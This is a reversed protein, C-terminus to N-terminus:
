GILGTAFAGAAALGLTWLLILAGTVWSLRLHRAQAVEAQLRRFEAVAPDDGPDLPEGHWTGPEGAAAAIRALEEGSHKRPLGKLWGRLERATLIAVRRPPRAVTLSRPELIVLCPSVELRIGTAASLLEGARVAGFEAERIHPVRKGEVLLVSGGIWLARGVHGRVAVTFVGPPGVILHDVPSGDRAVPVSDRVSWEGGLQALADSVALEGSAGRYDERSGPRLPSLGLM